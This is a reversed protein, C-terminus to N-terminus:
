SAELVDKVTAALQKLSFPKPLFTFTEGEGLNKEFADEAYGSIFIVKVDPLSDRLHTLMTPGDMEPMMVDSIVLDIGGDHAAVVDLADTGSNAELVNYGRMSLARVAFSRVAEEDEVLLLTESGTLDKPKEEIQVPVDVAAEVEDAVHRPLYIKFTTGQGEASDVFIYGDTQKVIGYVMSLGLGTGKGIDKTTFFPEFIKDITEQPMGCGTDTVELLVYEGPKLGRKEEKLSRHEAINETRLTLTGSGIGADSLGNAAMGELMADRANVALNIIVQDFQHHDAKVEWLDRGHDVKLEIKEGLLRSLMATVDKIVDHLSLVELRLTQQRSFALLQRVLRAARNANQKIHMMDKFSPDTPRHSGILLDTYGIIATLVNNFDHAIGGALQGVAQMKQSQAFQEELARQKSTDIAYIIAVAGDEAMDRAPSLYLRGSREGNLNFKVDVPSIVASGVGAVELATKLAEKESVDILEFLNDTQDADGQGGGQGLLVRFSGNANSIDGTGNITAIGIPATQYFQELRMETMRQPEFLQPADEARLALVGFHPEDSGIIDHPRGYLITSLTSGDECILDYYQVSRLSAHPVLSQQLLQVGEMPMLDTLSCGEMMRDSRGLWSSLTQNMYSLEGDSNFTFFGLPAADFQSVANTLEKYELDRQARELTIDTLRWVVGAVDGKAREKFAPGKVSHDSVSKDGMSSLNKKTFIPRVSIRVWRMNNELTKDGDQIFVEEEWDRLQTAAQCLRYVPEAIAPEGSFFTEVSSIVKDRPKRLIHFYADNAYLVDGKKNTILMGDTLNDAYAAFINADESPSHLDVIGASYALVAFVGITALLGLIGVLVMNFEQLFFAAFLVVALLGLCTITRFKGPWFMMALLRDEKVLDPKHPELPVNVESM